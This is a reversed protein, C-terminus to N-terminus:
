DDIKVLLDGARIGQRDAPSDKVVSDVVVGTEKGATKMRGILLGLRVRRLEEPMLM